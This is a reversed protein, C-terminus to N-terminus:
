IFATGYGLNQLIRFSAEHFLDAESEWEKRDDELRQEMKDVMELVVRELQFHLSQLHAELKAIQEDKDRLQGDKIESMRNADAKLDFNEKRLRAIM